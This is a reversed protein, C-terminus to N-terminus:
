SEEFRRKRARLSNSMQRTTPYKCKNLSYIRGPLTLDFPQEVPLSYRDHLCPLENPTHMLSKGFSGHVSSAGNM